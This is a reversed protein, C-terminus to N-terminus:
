LISLLPFLLTSASGIVFGGLLQEETNKRLYLRASSILGAALIVSYIWVSPFAMMKLSALLLGGFLCGISTTHSSIKWKFNLILCILIAISSAFMTKYIFAPMYIRYLLITCVMFSLITCSYPLIRDSANNLKMNDIVNLKSLVFITLMPLLAAFIVVFTFALRIM